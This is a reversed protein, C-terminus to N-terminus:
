LKKTGNKKSGYLILLLIAFVWGMSGGFAILLAAVIVVLCGM